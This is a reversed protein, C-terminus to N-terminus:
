RRKAISSMFYNRSAVVRDRSRRIEMCGFYLAENSQEATPHERPRYRLSTHALPVTRAAPIFKCTGV